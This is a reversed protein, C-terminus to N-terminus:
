FLAEGTGNTQLRVILSIAVAIEAVSAVLALAVCTIAGRRLTPTRWILVVFPDALTKM